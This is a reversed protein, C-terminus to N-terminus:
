PTLPLALSEWQKRVLRKAGYLRKSHPIADRRGHGETQPRRRGRWGWFHWRTALEQGHQANGLELDRGM